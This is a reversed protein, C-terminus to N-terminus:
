YISEGGLHYCANSFHTRDFHPCKMCNGIAFQKYIPQNKELVSDFKSIASLSEGTEFMAEELDSSFILRLCKGVCPPTM